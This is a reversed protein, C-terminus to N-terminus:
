GRWIETHGRRSMLNKDLTGSLTEKVFLATTRIIGPDPDNAALGLARIGFREFNALARELHFRSTAVAVYPALQKRELLDRTFFANEATTMSAAELLINATPVGRAALAQGMCIAEVGGPWRRGGSAIVTQAVGDSYAQAARDVRRLAAPSLTGDQEVRCGLVVIAAIAHEKTSM